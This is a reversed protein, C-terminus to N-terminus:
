ARICRWLSRRAASREFTSVRSTTEFVNVIADRVGLPIRRPEHSLPSIDAQFISELVAPELLTGQPQFLSLVRDIEIPAQPRHESRNEASEYLAFRAMAPVIAGSSVSRVM